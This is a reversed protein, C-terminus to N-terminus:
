LIQDSYFFSQPIQKLIQCPEEALPLEASTLKKIAEKKSSGFAFTYASDIRAFAPPTLTIRVFPMSDYGYVVETAAIGGTHPLMGAVHGDAGIGFQAIVRDNEEFANTIRREYEHVTKELSEGLLIPMPNINDFNFEADKMQKWNSDQHGVTGYREDTQGVTLLGLQETSVTKRIINMAEAAFPINSGGCILWLVRLNEGLSAALEGAMAEVGEKEDVTKVFQM